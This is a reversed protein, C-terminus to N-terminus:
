FDIKLYGIRKNTEDWFWIVNKVEDCILDRVRGNVKVVDRKKSPLEYSKEVIISLSEKLYGDKKPLGLSGIFIQNKNNATSKCEEVASVGISPSWTFEPEVFGYKEHSDLYQVEKERQLAIQYSKGYSAFPWGYHLTKNSNIPIYNIEDGGDPGHESSILKKLKKSFYLGQPNRHGKSIINKELSETNIKIIKGYDVNDTPWEEEQKFALVGISAAINDDDIAALKGGAMHPWFGKRKTMSVCSKPKYITKFNLKNKKYDSRAILVGWCDKSYIENLYSIYIHNKHILIDKIGYMSDEYFESYNILDLINSDLNEFKISMDGNTEFILGKYFDGDGTALFISNNIVDIYASGNKNFSVSKDSIPKNFNAFGIKYNSINTDKNFKLNFKEKKFFLKRRISSLSKLKNLITDSYDHGHIKYKPDLLFNDDRKEFNEVYFKQLKDYKDNKNLSLKKNLLSVENQLNQIKLNLFESKNNMQEKSVKNLDKYEESQKINEELQKITLGSKLAKQYDEFGKKDPERELLKRYAHYIPYSYKLLYKERSNLFFLFILTSPLFIALSLFLNRKNVM